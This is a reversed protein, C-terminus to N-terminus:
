LTELLDQRSCGVSTKLTLKLAQRSDATLRIEQAIRWPIIAAIQGGIEIVPPRRRHPPLGADRLIDTVRCRHSAGLPTLRDGPRAPRITAPAAAFREVDALLTGMPPPFTAQTIPIVEATLRGVGPIDTVSGAEIPLPGWDPRQRYVLIEDRHRRIAIGGGLLHEGTGRGVGQDAARIREFPARRDDGGLSRAARQLMALRILYLYSCFKRYDLAIEEPSTERICEGLAESTQAAVLDAALRLLEASRLLSKLAGSGFSSEIAPIIESRLRARPYRRDLNGADGAFPLGESRCFRLLRARRFGLLPRILTVDPAGPCPSVPAMGALGEVGSGSFLRMLVTEIQDDAQHGTMLLAPASNDRPEVERAVQALFRYRLRRAAAHIALRQASALTAVDESGVKLEVKLRACLDRVLSEEADAEPRLRHNFHAALVRREKGDARWRTLLAILATSDPGGSVAAVLPRDSQHIRHGDLARNFPILLDLDSSSM